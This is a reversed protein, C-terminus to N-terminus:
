SKDEITIKIENYPSNCTDNITNSHVQFLRENYKRLDTDKISKILVIMTSDLNCNGIGVINRIVNLSVKDSLFHNSINDSINYMDITYMPSINNSNIKM